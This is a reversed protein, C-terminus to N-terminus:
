KYRVDKTETPERSKVLQRGPSADLFYDEGRFMSTELIDNESFNLIFPDRNANQRCGNPDVWHSTTSRRLFRNRQVSFVTWKRLYPNPHVM